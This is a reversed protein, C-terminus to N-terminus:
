QRRAVDLEGLVLAVGEAAHVEDALAEVGDLLPVLESMRM